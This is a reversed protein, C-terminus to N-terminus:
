AAADVVPMEGEPATDAAAEPVTGPHSKPSRQRNLYIRMSDDMATVADRIRGLQRRAADTQAGHELLHLNGFIVTIRNNIDHQLIQAERAHPDTEPTSM